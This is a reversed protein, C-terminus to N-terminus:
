PFQYTKDIDRKRSVPSYFLIFFTHVIHSLWHDTLKYCELQGCRIFLVHQGLLTNTITKTKKFKTDFKMVNMTKQKLYNQIILM